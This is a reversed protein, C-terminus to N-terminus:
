SVGRFIETVDVPHWWLRQWGLDHFSLMINGRLLIGVMAVVQFRHSLLLNAIHVIYESSSSGCLGHKILVINKPSNVVNPKSIWDLGFQGGDDVQILERHYSLKFSYSTITRQLAQIVTQLQGHYDFLAAYVPLVYKNKKEIIEGVILRLNEECNIEIDVVKRREYLIAARTVLVITFFYALSWSQIDLKLSDLFKM